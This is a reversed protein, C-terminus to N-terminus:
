VCRHTFWDCTMLWLDTAVRDRCRACGQTNTKDRAAADIHTGEEHAWVQKFWCVWGNRLSLRRYPRGNRGRVEAGAWLCRFRSAFAAFDDRSVAPLLLLPLLLLPPLLPLLPLLLPLLLLLLLPPPLPPLPPLPPPPLLWRIAHIACSAKGHL